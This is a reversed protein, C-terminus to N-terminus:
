LNKFYNIGALLEQLVLEWQKDRKKLSSFEKWTKDTMKIVRPKKVEDKESLKRM